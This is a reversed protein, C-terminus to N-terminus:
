KPPIFRVRTRLLVNLCPKGQLWHNLLPRIQLSVDQNLHSVVFEIKVKMLKTNKSYNLSM